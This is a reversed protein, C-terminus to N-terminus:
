FPQHIDKRNFIILVPFLKEALTGISYVDFLTGYADFAILKYMVM